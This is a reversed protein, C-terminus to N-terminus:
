GGLVSLINDEDEESLEVYSDDLLYDIAYVLIDVFEDHTKAPFQSVEDEFEENWDGEVLIVRGCEIKPSVGHLRVEKSDTPSPTRTVNLKTYRKVAQIVTIGNAKPEIRITSRGDYGHARVYDPLFKM